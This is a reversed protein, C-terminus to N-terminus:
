VFDLPLGEDLSGVFAALLSVTDEVDRLDVTEVETHSYRTPISVQSAPVGGRALHFAAADAGGGVVVNPQVGIGEAGAVSFLRENLKPHSIIGILSAAFAEEIQDFISIVPGGGLKVTSDTMGDCDPTDGSAMIDVSIAASYPVVASVMHAGRLGVEEQVTVVGVLTASTEVDRLREMLSILVACAVRNDMAKASLRHPGLARAESVIAVPSGVKVGSAAVEDPNAAGIDVFLPSGPEPKKGLHWAEVGIVGDAPGVRVPRGRMLDMPVGGVPEVRLFGNPAISKVYFGIEDSHAGILLRFGDPETGNKLAVVNGWSDVECSDSVRGLADALYKVVDQESGSVGHLATLESILARTDAM